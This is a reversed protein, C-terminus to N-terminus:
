ADIENELDQPPAEGGGGGREEDQRQLEDYNVKAGAKMQSYFAKAQQYLAPDTVEQKDSMVWTHWSGQDNAEEETSLLWSHAWMPPQKLKGDIEVTSARIATNWRRSKKLQTSKMAMLAGEVGNEEDLVLVFHQATYQLEHGNPLTRKAGDKEAKALLPTEAAHAAVFGGGASRPIWEIVVPSFYCPIVRVTKYLAQNVSNFIMGPQAGEVYGAMKKKTQPSLDQLVTLFPIAFDKRTAEEFGQGADEEMLAKLQTAQAVAVEKSNSGGKSVTKAIQKAM